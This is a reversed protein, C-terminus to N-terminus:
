VCNIRKKGTKTHNQSQGVQIKKGVDTQSAKGVGGQSKVGGEQSQDQEVVEAKGWVLKVRGHALVRSKKVLGLQDQGRAQIKKGEDSQSAEEVVESKKRGSDRGEAFVEKMMGCGAFIQSKKGVDSQRPAEIQNKM